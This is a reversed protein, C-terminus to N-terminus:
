HQFEVAIVERGASLLAAYCIAIQASKSLLIVNQVRKYVEHFTNQSLISGDRIQGKYHGKQVFEM